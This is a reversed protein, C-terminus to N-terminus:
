AGRIVDLMRRLLEKKEGRKKEVDITRQLEQVESTHEINVPIDFEMITRETTPIRVHLPVNLTINYNNVEEIVPSKAYINVFM